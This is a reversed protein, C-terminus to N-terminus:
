WIYCLVEGGVGLSKAEKDTLVGKSTSIVAVGFNNFVRPVADRKVYIRKSMRSIRKLGQIAPKGSVYKLLVTYRYPSDQSDKFDAIYGEKRMISLVDRVIGSKVVEVKPFKRPLVNRIKTLSDAITDM